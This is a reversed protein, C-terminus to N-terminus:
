SGLEGACGNCGPYIKEQAYDVQECLVSFVAMMEGAQGVRALVRTKGTALGCPARRSLLYM